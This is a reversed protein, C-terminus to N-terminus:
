NGSSQYQRLSAKWFSYALALLSVGVIPTIYLFCEPYQAMDQKRLM